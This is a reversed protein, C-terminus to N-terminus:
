RPPSNDNGYNVSHGKRARLLERDEDETFQESAVINGSIEVISESVRVVREHEVNERVEGTEGCICRPVQGDRSRYDRQAEEVRSALHLM